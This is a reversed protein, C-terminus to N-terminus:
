RHLSAALAPLRRGSLFACKPGIPPKGRIGPAVTFVFAARLPPGEKGFSALRIGKANGIGLDGRRTARFGLIRRLCLFRWIILSQGISAASTM